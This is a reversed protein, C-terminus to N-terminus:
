TRVQESLMSLLVIHIYHSRFLTNTIRLVTQEPM